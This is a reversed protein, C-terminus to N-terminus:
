KKKGIEVIQAELLDIMSQTAELAAEQRIQKNQERVLAARLGAVNGNSM